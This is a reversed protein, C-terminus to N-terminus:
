RPREDARPTIFLRDMKSGAERVRLQLNVTGAPLELPTAARGGGIVFPIWQWTPRVGTPWDARGLVEGADTFVRVYFSDNEPTPSLVRGWLFYKGAAAVNLEWTASGVSSGAREGPAAPMWVFRGGSAGTDAGFNMPPIVRGREAEWYVGEVKPLAVPQGPGVTERWRRIPEL